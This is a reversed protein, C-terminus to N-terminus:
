RQLKIFRFLFTKEKKRKQKEFKMRQKVTKIPQDTSLGYKSIFFPSFDKQLIEALWEVACM